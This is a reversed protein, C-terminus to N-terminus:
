RPDGTRDDCETGGDSVSFSAGAHTTNACARRRDEGAADGRRATSATITPLRTSSPM